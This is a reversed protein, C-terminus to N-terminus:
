DDWPGFDDMAKGRRRRVPGLVDRLVMELVTLERPPPNVM